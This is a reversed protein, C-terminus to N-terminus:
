YINVKNKRQSQLNPLTAENALEILRRQARTHPKRRGSRTIKAHPKFLKLDRTQVPKIITKIVASSHLLFAITVQGSSSYTCLYDSYYSSYYISYYIFHYVTSYATSYTTSYTTSYATTDYVYLWLGRSQDRPRYLAEMLPGRPMFLSLPREMM